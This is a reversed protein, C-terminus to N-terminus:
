LLQLILLLIGGAIRFAALSIGFIDLVKTGMLAFFLLVAFATSVGKKIVKNKMQKSYDATLSIFIPVLGIADITFFLATFQLIFTHLLSDM